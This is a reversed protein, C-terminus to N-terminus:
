KVQEVKIVKVKNRPLGHRSGLDAYLREVALKESEAEFTKTFSRPEPRISMIGSISYKM